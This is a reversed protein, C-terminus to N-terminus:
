QEKGAFVLAGDAGSIVITNGSFDAEFVARVGTLVLKGNGYAWSVPQEQEGYRISGAGESELSLVIDSGEFSCIWSGLFPVPTPSPTPVPSPTPTPTYVNLSLEQPTPRPTPVPTKAPIPTDTPASAVTPVPVPMEKKGCGCALLLLILILFLCAKSIRM